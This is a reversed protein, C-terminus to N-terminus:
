LLEFISRFSEVSRKSNSYIAFGIAESFESAHPEKLEARFFKENNVILMGASSINGNLIKIDPAGNSIKKIISSNQESLPCIIKINANNEQSSKILYDIIGLRDVRIMAEDNPLIFLAENEVSKALDVLIKGARERDNIVELFEPEIGQEIAIIREKADIGNRWLEDFISVFHNIYAQENSVLLSKITEGAEMKEITAIMEKDSVAFTNYYIHSFPKISLSLLLYIM